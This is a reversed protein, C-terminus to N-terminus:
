KKLDICNAHVTMKEIFPINQPAFKSIKAFFVVFFSM